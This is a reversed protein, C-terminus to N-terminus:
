KEGTVEESIYAVKSGDKSFDIGGLTTGDKSFYQSSVEEKGKADKRYMVSQNQLGNNKFFTFNGEKSSCRNKTIGCNRWDHKLADRFSNPKFLWLDSRKTSKGLLQRMLVTTKWGDTPIM